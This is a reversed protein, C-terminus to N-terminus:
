SIFFLPRLNLSGLRSIKEVVSDSPSMTHYGGEGQNDRSVTPRNVEFRIIMTSIRRGGLLTAWSRPPLTNITTYVLSIRDEEKVRKPSGQSFGEGFDALNLCSAM